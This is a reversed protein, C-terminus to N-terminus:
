RQHKTDTSEFIKDASKEVFGQYLQGNPLPYRLAFEYYVSPIEFKGDSFTVQVKDALTSSQELYVGQSGKIEGGSSNLKYGKSKIFENLSQLTKFKNLANVNVTFHNVRFGFASMWAAYESEELLQSYDKYSISWPRGSVCFDTKDTFGAPIQSVLNKIINQANASLKSTQLQSIFIKPVNPETHEFHMAFLKKETFIYEGKSIYGLKQFVKAMKELNTQPDDFTRFAVHDNQVVEGENELIQLVRLASPNLQGYDTWLKEFLQYLDSLNSM